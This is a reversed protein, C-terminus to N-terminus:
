ARVMLQSLRTGFLCNGGNYHGFVQKRHRMVVVAILQL